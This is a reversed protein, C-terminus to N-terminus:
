YAIEASYCDICLLRDDLVYEPDKDGCRACEEIIGGNRTGSIKKNARMPEKDEKPLNCVHLTILIELVVTKFISM